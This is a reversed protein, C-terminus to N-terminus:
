WVDRVASRKSDGDKAIYRLISIDFDPQWLRAIFCNGVQCVTLPPDSGRKILAGLAIKHTHTEYRKMFPFCLITITNIGSQTKWIRNKETSEPLFQRNSDVVCKKRPFRIKQKDASHFVLNSYICVGANKRFFFQKNKLPNGTTKPSNAFNRFADHRDTQRDTRGDTRM